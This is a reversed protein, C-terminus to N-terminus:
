GARDDQPASAALRARMYPLGGGASIITQMVPPLPTGLIEFGQSLDVLRGAEFDVELEDGTKIRVLDGPFPSLVPVGANVCSRIPGRAMSRAVVGVGCGKLGLFGQIHPNGFGFNWGGVVIDGERVERAFQPMLQEFCHRKLIQPDYVQKRTMAMSMIGDDNPVNDGFVWARGRFVLSM